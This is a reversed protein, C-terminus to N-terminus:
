NGSHSLTRRRFWWRLCLFVPFFCAAWIFSQLFLAMWESMLRSIGTDKMVLLPFCVVMMAADLVYGGGCVFWMMGLLFLSHLSTGHDPLLSVCGLTCYEMEHDHRM